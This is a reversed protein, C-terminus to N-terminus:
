TLTGSYLTTNWCKVYGKVCVYVCVYLCVMAVFLLFSGNLQGDKEIM